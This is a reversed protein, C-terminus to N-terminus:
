FLAELVKTPIELKHKIAAQMLDDRKKLRYYERALRILAFSLSTPCFELKVRKILEIDDKGRIRFTTTYM